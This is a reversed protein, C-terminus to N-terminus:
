RRNQKGLGRSNMVNCFPEDERKFRCFVFDTQIDVCKRTVHNLKGFRESQGEHQRGEGSAANKGRIMKCWFKDEKVNMTKSWEHTKNQVRDKESCPNQFVLM